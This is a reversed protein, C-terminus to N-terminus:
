LLINSGSESYQQRALSDINVHGQCISAIWALFRAAATSLDNVGDSWYGANTFKQQYINGLHIPTRNSGNTTQLKPLREPLRQSTDKPDRILWFDALLSPDVEFLGYFPTTMWHQAPQGISTQAFILAITVSFVSEASSAKRLQPRWRAARTTTKTSSGQQHNTILGLPNQKRVYPIM